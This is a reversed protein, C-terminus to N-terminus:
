ANDRKQSHLEPFDIMPLPNLEFGNRSCFLTRRRDVLRDNVLPTLSSSANNPQHLVIDVM